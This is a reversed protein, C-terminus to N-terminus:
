IGWLGYWYYSSRVHSFLPHQRLLYWACGWKVCGSRAFSTVICALKGQSLDGGPFPPPARIEVFQMSDQLHRCPWTCPVHINCMYSSSCWTNLIYKFRYQSIGIGLSAYMQYTITIFWYRFCPLARIVPLFHTQPSCLRVHHQGM